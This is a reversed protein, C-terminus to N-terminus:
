ILAGTKEFENQFNHVEVKDTILFLSNNYGLCSPIITLYFLVGNLLLISHMSPKTKLSDAIKQEKRM